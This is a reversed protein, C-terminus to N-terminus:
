TFKPTEPRFGTDIAVGGGVARSVCTTMSAAQEREEDSLFVDRHDLEGDVDLVRVTCLGCEGRLCDWVMDVGADRLADLMTRNAPVQVHQDRDRVDVLFPEAAFRGGSAFTEFRLRTPSRGAAAWAAKAAEVLRLPGCLYLEADSGLRDIEAALDLRHGEASVFVELRDGLMSELEPLFPLQSRERGAYLLRFPRGSRCLAEAMGVLPTIGIGGGVLLYESRGYQLEFSSQPHSLSIRRGPELAHIWASGGRGDPLHKVAIRYAGDAPKEWVVSYSRTDPLGAIEVAIDLHAGSPYGRVGEDPELEVLRVDDAVATVSRVRGDVFHVGSTM